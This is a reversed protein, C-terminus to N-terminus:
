YCIGSEHRCYERRFPSMEEQGKAAPAEELHEGNLYIIATGGAQFVLVADREDPCVVTTAVFGALKKGARLQEGHTRWFLAGHLQNVNHLGEATQVFPVWALDQSRAASNGERTLVRDLSITTEKPDYVVAHWAYITPFLPKSRHAFSLTEGRWTVEVEAEWRRRKVQGNFAFPADVIQAESTEKIEITHATKGGAEWLSFTVSLDYTDEATAALGQDQIHVMVDAQDAATGDSLAITDTITDSFRGTTGEVASTAAFNVSAKITTALDM